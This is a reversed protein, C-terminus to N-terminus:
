FEQLIIKYTILHFTLELTNRNTTKVMVSRRFKIISQRIRVKLYFGDFLLSIEEFIFSRLLTQLRYSITTSFKVLFHYDQISSQHFHKRM